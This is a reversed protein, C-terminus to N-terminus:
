IVSNTTVQCSFLPLGPLGPNRFIRWIASQPPNEVWAMKWWGQSDSIVRELEMVEMRLVRTKEKELQNTLIGTRASRGEAMRWWGSVDLTEEEEEPMRKLRKCATHVKWGEPITEDDENRMRKMQQRKTKKFEELKRKEELEAVEEMRQRKKKTYEFTLM